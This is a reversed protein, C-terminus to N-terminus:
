GGRAVLDPNSPSVSCLGPWVPDPDTVAACVVSFSDTAPVAVRLPQQHRLDTESDSSAPIGGARTLLIKRPPSERESGLRAADALGERRPVDGWM